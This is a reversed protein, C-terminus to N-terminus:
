ERRALRSVICRADDEVPDDIPAGRDDRSAGARRVHDGADVKGALVAKRHRHAATTVADGALRDTVVPEHDIKRGHLTNTDIRGRASHSGFGAEGDAFEVAFRLGEAQRGRHAHDGGCADGSQGEAAAHAPQDALVAQGAVIHDGHIDDGRVSSQELRALLFVRIQEPAHAAAAAVETITM